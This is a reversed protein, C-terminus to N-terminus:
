NGDHSKDDNRKFRKSCKNNTEDDALLCSAQSEITLLIINILGIANDWNIIHKSHFFIKRTATINKTGINIIERTANDNNLDHPRIRLCLLKILQHM